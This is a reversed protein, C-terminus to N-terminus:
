RVCITVRDFSGPVNIVSWKLGEGEVLNRDADGASTAVWTSNAVGTSCTLTGSLSISNGVRDFLAISPLPATCAGACHCAIGAVTIAQPAILVELDDDGSQARDKTDCIFAHAPHVLALLVVCV